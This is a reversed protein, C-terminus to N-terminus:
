GIGRRRLEPWLDRASHAGFYRFVYRLNNKVTQVQVGLRDAIEKNSLGMIFCMLVERRSPSLALVDPHEMHRRHAALIDTFFAHPVHEDILKRALDIYHPRDIEGLHFAALAARWYYGADRWISLARKLSKRALDRKGSFRYVVGATYQELAELRLDRNGFALIPSISSRIKTYEEVYQWAAEPQEQALIQALVLLATRSEGNQKWDAHSAAYRADRLFREATNKEGAYRAIMARDADILVM